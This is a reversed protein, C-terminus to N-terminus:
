LSCNLILTHNLFAKWFLFCFRFFHSLLDGPSCVQTSSCFDSGLAPAWQSLLPRSPFWPAGLLSPTAGPFNKFWPRARLSMAAPWVTQLKSFVRPALTSTIVQSDAVHGHCSFGQSHSVNDPSQTSIPFVLPGLASSQLDGPILPGASLSTGSFPAAPLPIFTLSHQSVQPGSFFPTWPLIILQM